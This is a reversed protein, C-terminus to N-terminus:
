QDHRPPPQQGGGEPYFATQELIAYWKGSESQAQATLTTTFSQIYPDQYFLKEM